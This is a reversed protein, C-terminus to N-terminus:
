PGDPYAAEGRLYAQIGADGLKAVFWKLAMGAQRPHWAYYVNAVSKSGEVTKAVLRGASIHPEAWKLPLYGVGLGAIHAALKARLSPLTLTDQGDILGTSRPALLRSTDAAPVARHQRIDESTLPEGAKALPHDPAVAFVFEFRGMPAVAISGEPPADGPAGIVLDARGTMLADWCGNLIESSLRLRTGGGERYFAKLLPFLREVPVMDDVAIRLESEWGTAVRTVRCELDDAARLLHRGDRLLVEGAPTLRARQRSRDFLKLGLDQELKRVTYTIASPVRHLEQAAGAFSGRRAIADLVLLADLSIKM